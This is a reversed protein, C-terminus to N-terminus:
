SAPPADAQVLTWEDATLSAFLEDQTLQEDATAPEALLATQSASFAPMGGPPSTGGNDGAYTWRNTRAKAQVLINDVYVHGVSRDFVLGLGEIRGFLADEKGKRMVQAKM